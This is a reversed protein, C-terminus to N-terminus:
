SILICSQSLALVLIVPEDDLSWTCKIAQWKIQICLLILHRQRRPVSSFGSGLYQSSLVAKRRPPSTRGRDDRRTTPLSAWTRGTAMAGLIPTRGTMGSGLESSHERMMRKRRKNKSKRNSLQEESRKGLLFILFRAHSVSSVWCWESCLWM